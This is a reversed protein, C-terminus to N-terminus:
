RAGGASCRAASSSFTAANLEQGGAVVRGDFDCLYYNLWSGYSATRTLAEYREPLRGLTADIVTSNRNLTGALEHLARVDAALAPRVDRLLGATAGTLDGLNTLADGIAARDAALGSVFQQLQSITQDLNRDRNALTGLVSNLNTIVRGIVADRDALTNTLSATRQLLSAVTGSEGQLVQIIEYALKNVENPSLATFLPRFGNFLVTLDLAPTTRALPILGGRPLPRGDGPGETLAVYRQGVLNRYRIKARVSTALPVDAEVTFTVEAVTDEVVRIDRVQGVRVGAIRVDDGPLLGTVDTFRARYSVGGTSLSGLTQALLGTLVLTVAAFIILKVLPAMTKRNM